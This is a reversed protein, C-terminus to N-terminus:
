GKKIRKANEASKKVLQAGSGMLLGGTLLKTAFKVFENM